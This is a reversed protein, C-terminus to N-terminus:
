CKTRPSRMIKQHICYTTIKGNNNGFCAMTTGLVRINWVGVHKDILLSKRPGASLKALQSAKKADNGGV